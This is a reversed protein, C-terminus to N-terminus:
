LEGRNVLTAKKLISMIKDASKKNLTGKQIAIFVTREALKIYLEKLEPKKTGLSDLHKEITETDGRAVPGTLAATTGIKGINKLNSEMLPMLMNIAAESPVGIDALLKCASDVIAVMFNSVFVAAAHYFPKDGSSLFISGCKLSEAMKRLLEAINHGGEIAFTSGPLSIIASEFDPFPICPHFSGPIAGLNSAHSLVDLSHVGSCHVVFQGNKWDVNEAVTKISNDTTTIFIIDSNKAVDTMSHVSYSDAGILAAAAAAKSESRSWVPGLNYGARRLAVALATGVKGTGIIGINLSSHNTMEFSSNM